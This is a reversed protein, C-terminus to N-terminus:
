NTVSIPPISGFDIFDSYDGDVELTYVGGTYSVKIYKTSFVSGSTFGVAQTYVILNPPIGDVGSISPTIACSGSTANTADGEGRFYIFGNHVSYQPTVTIKGGLGSNAVWGNMLILDKWVPASTGAGDQGDLGDEGHFKTWTTFEPQTVTDGVKSVFSIYETLDTPTYTFGTGNEDTAFAVYISNGDDGNTGDAGTALSLPIKNDDCDTCSM